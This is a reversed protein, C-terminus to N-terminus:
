LSGPAVDQFKALGRTGVDAPNLSGPIHFPGSIKPSLASALGLNAHFEAVRNQFYTKLQNAPKRTADISCQSDGLIIVEQVLHDLSRLILFIIRSGALM